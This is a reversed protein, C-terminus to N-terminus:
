PKVAIIGTPWEGSGNTTSFTASIPNTSNYNLIYEDQNPHLTCNPDPCVGYNPGATWGTGASLAGLNSYTSVQFGYLFDGVRSPTIPGSTLADIGTGAANTFNGNFADVSAGGSFGSVEALLGVPPSFLGGNSSKITFSSQSGSVNFLIFSTASPCCNDFGFNGPYITRLVTAQQSGLTIVDPSGGNCGPPAEWQAAGMIASGPKVPTPLTYSYSNSCPPSWGYLVGQVVQIGGTPIISVNVSASATGARAASPALASLMVLFTVWVVWKTAMIPM